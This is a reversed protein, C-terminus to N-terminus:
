IRTLDAVGKHVLLPLGFHERAAHRENRM